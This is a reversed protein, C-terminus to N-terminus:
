NIKMALQYVYNKKINLKSAIEQIAEKKTLGNKLEQKLIKIIKEDSIVLEEKNGAVVIVMEGKLTNPDLELAEDLTGRIYEEHMKTIERALSFQRPGLVELLDKLTDIIRHPAEYFILTDKIQKLAVLEAKRKSSRADLFGYFYFHNAPLNSAILAPIFANSGNVVSVPFGEEIAKSVITKGPDSILPYGADSVIALSKGERLYELLKLSIQSENHEHYSILKNKIDFHSLLSATNRTDESAIFDVNSLVELARPSFEKLNGIPTAVLYVIAKTSSFSKIREM